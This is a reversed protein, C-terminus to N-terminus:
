LEQFIKSKDMTIIQKIGSDNNSFAVVIVVILTRLTKLTKLNNFNLSSILSITDTKALDIFDNNYLIM